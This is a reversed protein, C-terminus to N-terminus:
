CRNIHFNTAGEHFSFEVTSGQNWLEQWVQSKATELATKRGNIDEIM